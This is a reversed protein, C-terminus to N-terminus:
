QCRVDITFSYAPIYCFFFRSHSSRLFLLLIFSVSVKAIAAVFTEAFAYSWTDPDMRRIKLDIFVLYDGAKTECAATYCKRTESKHECVKM